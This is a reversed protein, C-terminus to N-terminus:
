GGRLLGFGFSGSGAATQVEGLLHLLISGFLLLELGLRRSRHRRGRPDERLLREGKWRRHSNGACGRRGAYELSSRPVAEEQRVPCCVASDEWLGVVSRGAPLGFWSGVEKGAWAEAGNRGVVVAAGAVERRARGRKEVMEFRVPVHVPSRSLRVVMREEGNEGALEVSVTGIGLDVEAAVVEM